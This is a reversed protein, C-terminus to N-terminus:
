GSLLTSIFCGGTGGGKDMWEEQSGALAAGSRISIIGNAQGDADFGGGDTVYITVQTRDTNFVAGDTSGEVGGEFIFWGEGPDYTFWGYDEPLPTTFYLTVEGMMGPVPVKCSVDILGYLFNRPKKPLDPIEPSTDLRLILSVLNGSHLIGIRKETLTAMPIAGAPLYAHSVGNNMVMYRVQYYPSTDGNLFLSFRLERNEGQEVVPAVFTPRLSNQNSVALVGNDEQWNLQDRETDIINIEMAGEGIICTSGELVTLTDAGGESEFAEVADVFRGTKPGSLTQVIKIFKASSVGFDVLDFGTQTYYDGGGGATPPLEVPGQWQSGDESVYIEAPGPGFHYVMFDHGDRDVFKKRFELTMYGNNYNWGSLQDGDIDRDYDPAGLANLAGDSERTAWSKCGSEKLVSAAFVPDYDVVTVKVTDTATLGGSDTVTLSFVLTQGAADVPLELLPRMIGSDFTLSEGALQIWQYKVIEDGTDPDYSQSGDLRVRKGQMIKQDLGAKAVPPYNTTVTMNVKQASQNGNQDIVTLSFELVTGHSMESDVIFYAEAQDTEELDVEPGQTQIWTYSAIDNDPDFSRTGDLIVIAGPDVLTPAAISAIPAHNGPELAYYAEVADVFRGTNAGGPSQIIRVLQLWEDSLDYDDLDFKHTHLLEGGANGAPLVGLDTWNSGDASVAVTAPGPGFNYVVLDHGQGRGFAKDFLLVMLGSNNDWGSAQNGPNDPDYDPAGLAGIAKDFDRTVWSKSGEEEFVRGAFVPFYDVITIMVEDQSSRGTSDTVTLQFILTQDKQDPATFGPNATGADSLVVGPGDIQEWLYSTIDNDPDLSGSGDLTVSTGRMVKQDLGADATPPHETIATVIVEDTDTLNGRDTVTLLFVFQEGHAVEAPIIFYPNMTGAGVLDVNRGGTQAWHYSFLDDPGDPDSSGSADLTVETGVDASLDSGAYASPAQNDDEPEPSVGVADIFKGTKPGGSLKEIKLYRASSVGFTELSYTDVFVENGGPAVDRLQVQESWTINDQSMRMYVLNNAVGSWNIGGFHWFTLDQTFIYGFDLVFYGYGQQWGLADGSYTAPDFDPAGTVAEQLNAANGTWQTLPWAPSPHQNEYTVLSQVFNYEDASTSTVMLLIILGFALGIRKSYMM